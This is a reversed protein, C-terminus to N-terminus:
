FGFITRLTIAQQASPTFAQKNDIYMLDGSYKDITPATVGIALFSLANNSDKYFIDGVIPSKNDLSQILVASGTNTVIRFRTADSTLRILTDAPFNTTNISGTIVWCASSLITTSIYTTGYKYPNRIIGIQRYDNNVSFGQNKDNSVDSFFMLSKACLQNLANKGHGGYPSIIARAKAGYGNGTIQVIARTYGTGQNVINIKTIRGSVITATATCGVGDGTVTVSASIYNVGGSIVPINMIKGSTTLLEVNAQVTNVDGVSLVPTLQADTTGDGTITINAHSYGIGGDLIQVSTIQGGSIIPLLKATSTVTSLAIAGNTGTTDSITYTPVSSYGAGSKVDVTGTAPSGVYTLTYGGNVVAGTTHTPASAGLVGTGSTVTYLRNAYYIQSNITASAGTVWITGFTVTPTTTYSGLSTIKVDIVSGTQLIASATATGSSFNVTPTNTYGVGGSTISIGRIQKNMVVTALHASVITLTGTATRGIFSLAATGLSVIGYTHTPASASLTGAVVVRYFNNSYSVVQGLVVSSLSVWSSANSFPPAIALTPSTYTTGQTQIGADLIYIPDAELYGDGDVVITASTYGEGRSDITINQINGNSYFQQQLATVVPMYAETLFKNRLATPINYIFKWVYGDTTTISDVTTGYPQTTSIAGNNNDICIYVNFEDTIVYFVTNELKQVGNAGVTVKATGTASATGTGIFTASPASTYGVGNNTMTVDIVVGNLITTTAAAGTGGGGSFSVSPAIVYGSGGSTLNVGQVITSYQDDYQDYYTGSTWTYRPVVYAVDTTKVQKLSIIENRTDHEYAQSDIPNEPSLDNTWSLTRGLFYYYNSTRSVIDNYVSDAISNHMISKILTSSTTM